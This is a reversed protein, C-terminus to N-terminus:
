CGAQPACYYLQQGGPLPSLDTCNVAIWHLRPDPGDAVFALHFQGRCVDAEIQALTPSPYTGTYGGIPVVEEGTADIFLSALVATQTAMLYPTGRRGQELAPVFTAVSAPERIFTQDIVATAADPQFPTDFAGRQSAVISVAAVTPTFCTAVLGAALGAALMGRSRRLAAVAIAALGVVGVAIAAPRLWAPPSGSGLLWAAYGVSAIVVVGTVAPVVRHGSSWAVAVGAGIIAAIAPALVATYYPNVSTSVSFAVGLVFLWSTWLIVSARVPDTRPQARRSVLVVIAVVIAALLLWGTDRGLFSNFLRWPSVPEPPPALCGIGQACLEQVPTQGGLRTFGNYVFVQQFWSDNSSGDVYPRSGSPTLSVLAMWSLSVVVTVAGALGLQRVRRMTAGPGSILYALALAPLVLWAQLMKAQFALGVWVGALILSRGRGSSVAASTADAALVLLLIMLTDNINGRDLTVVAPSIALVAAAVLGATPGALRAVARYLFVVTLMGEIAQPLAMAWTHFGFVAVFVAQVWLSGPLKDLTVTGAPDLAGYLFNHMNASMSRVSAVYYFHLTDNGMRWTYAAGALAVILALGAYHPWLPSLM